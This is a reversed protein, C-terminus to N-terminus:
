DNLGIRPSRARFDAEWQRHQMDDQRQQMDHIQQDTRHQAAEQDQRQRDAENRQRDIQYDREINSDWAWVPGVMLVGVVMVMFIAKKM